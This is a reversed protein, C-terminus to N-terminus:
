QSSPIGSPLRVKFPSADGSAARPLSVVFALGGEPHGEVWLQGDHLEVAVRAFALGLGYGVAREGLQAYPEFMQSQETPALPAGPCGIWVKMMREDNEVRVTTRGTARRVCHLALNMLVRRLLDPDVMVAGEDPPFHIEIGKERALVNAALEREVDRTLESLRIPALEPALQGREFRDFDLVTRVSHMLLDFVTRADSAAEEFDLRRADGQPPGFRALYDVNARLAAVAGQLDHLLYHLWRRRGVIEAGQTRQKRDVRRQLARTRLLAWLRVRREYADTSPGFVADAGAEFARVRFNRVDSTALMITPVFHTRVNTKLRHCLEIGGGPELRDDIFVVDPPHMLAEEFASDPDFTSQVDIGQQRLFAVLPRAVARGPTVLLAEVQSPLVLENSHTTREDPLM